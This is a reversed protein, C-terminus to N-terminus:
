KRRSTAAPRRDESKGEDDLPPETSRSAPPSHAEKRLDAQWLKHLTKWSDHDRKRTSTAKSIAEPNGEKLFRSRATRVGVIATPKQLRSQGHCSMCRTLRGRPWLSGTEFPDDDGTLGGTGGVDDVEFRYDSPDLAKMVADGHMLKRPQIVFEAVSQTARFRGTRESQILDVYARLSISIILPSLILEGDDSILFAQEILAFQTGAPLQERRNFKEVCKLTETRGGPASMFSHFASRWKSKRAHQNAPIPGDVEGLCIWSSERSYIDSPLFSEFLDDPDHNEAFGGSKETAALTNPLALIQERTLALRKILLAVTPEVAARRDSPSRRAVRYDGTRPDIWRVPTSMDFVKWLHRQLLARKVDSYAELEAQPLAAFADLADSFQKYTRDGFPFESSPWIAPSSENAGYAQGDKAYRTMLVDYLVDYPDAPDEAGCVRSTLLQGLFLALLAVRVLHQLRLSGALYTTTEQLAM